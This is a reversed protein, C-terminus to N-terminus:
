VFRRPLMSVTDSARRPGGDFFAVSRRSGSPAPDSSTSRSVAADLGARATLAAFVDTRGQTAHTTVVGLVVWFVERKGFDLADLRREVEPETGTMLQALAVRALPRRAWLRESSPTRGSRDAITPSRSL